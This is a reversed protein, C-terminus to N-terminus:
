KVAPTYSVLEFVSWDGRIPQSGRGASLSADLWHSRREARVARGLAPAYWDTETTVTQSVFTGADGSYVTRVIKITDFTGAPTSVRASGAVEGYVRMSRPRGTAMSTADLRQSWSKGADLPFPYAPFAPAFLYDVPYDHNLLPHRVWNGEPTYIETHPPGAYPHNAIVAAVVRGGSSQEIRYHIEGQAEGNYANIVRYVATAGVAPLAPPMAALRGADGAALPIGVPTGCGALFLAMGLFALLRRM